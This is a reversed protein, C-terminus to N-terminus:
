LCIFIRSYHHYNAPIILPLLTSHGVMSNTGEFLDGSPRHTQRGNVRIVLTSTLLITTSINPAPLSLSGGRVSQLALTRDLVECIRSGSSLILERNANQSHTTDCYERFKLKSNQFFSTLLSGM